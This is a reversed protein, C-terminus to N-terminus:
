RRFWKTTLRNIVRDSYWREGTSGNYRALGQMLDGGEM